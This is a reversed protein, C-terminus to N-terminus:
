KTKRARIDLLDNITHRYHQYKGIGIASILEFRSLEQNFIFDILIATTLENTSPNEILIADADSERNTLLECRPYQYKNCDNIHLLYQVSAVLSVIEDIQINEHNTGCLDIFYNLLQKVRLRKMSVIVIHLHARKLEGNKDLDKNHLCAYYIFGYSSVGDIIDSVSKKCRSLDSIVVNFQTRQSELSLM